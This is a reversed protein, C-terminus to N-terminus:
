KREKCQEVLQRCFSCRTGIEETSGCGVCRALKEDRPLLSEVERVARDIARFFSMGDSFNFRVEPDKKVASKKGKRM